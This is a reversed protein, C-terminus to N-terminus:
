GDPVPEKVGGKRSLAPHVRVRVADMRAVVERLQAELGPDIRRLTDATTVPQIYERAERTLRVADDLEMPHRTVPRTVETRSYMTALEALGCGPLTSVDINLFTFIAALVAETSELMEEYKIVLYRDPHALIPPLWSEHFRIYERVRELVYIEEDSLSGIRAYPTGRGGVHDLAYMSRIADFPNRYIIIARRFSPHFEHHTKLLNDQGNFVFPQFTKDPDLLTTAYLCMEAHALKRFEGTRHYHLVTAVTFRIWGIGSRVFDALLITHRDVRSAVQAHLTLWVVVRRLPARLAPPLRHRMGNRLTGERVGNMVDSLEWLVSSYVRQVASSMRRKM